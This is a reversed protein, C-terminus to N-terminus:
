GNILDKIPNVGGCTFTNYTYEFTIPEDLPTIGGGTMTNKVKQVHVFTNNWLTPHNTIRHITIFDDTRNVFSMGGEVDSSKPAMVYPALPHGDKYVRRAAESIPHTNIYVTKKTKNCFERVTNCFLYNRDFQSVRGGRDSNLGTFPDILCGDADTKNFINLLEQATYLKTNDVFKFYYDIKQLLTKINGENLDELKSQTIMQILGIKLQEPTNEGSWIVWKLNNILSHCLLYWMLFYTKGVNPFGSVMVMQGQKYRLVEDLPKIGIGLGKKIKGNKYDMVYELGYGDSLIAM